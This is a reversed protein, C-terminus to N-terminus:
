SENSWAPLIQSEWTTTFCIPIRRKFIFPANSTFDQSYRIHLTYKVVYTVYILILMYLFCSLVWLPLLFMGYRVEFWSQSHQASDRQKLDGPVEPVSRFPKSEVEVSWGPSQKRFQMMRRVMCGTTDSCHCGLLCAFSGGRGHKKSRHSGSHQFFESLSSSRWSSQCGPHWLYVKLCRGANFETDSVPMWIAHNQNCFLAQVCYTWNCITVVPWIPGHM